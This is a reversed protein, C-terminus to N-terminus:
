NYSVVKYVDTFSAEWGSQEDASIKRYKNLSKQMYKAIFEWGKLTLFHRTFYFLLMVLWDFVSKNYSYKKDLQSQLM